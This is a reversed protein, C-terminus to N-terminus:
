RGTFVSLGFTTSKKTNAQVVAENIAWIEDKSFTEFRSATKARTAFCYIALSIGLYLLWDFRAFIPIAIWQNSLNIKFIVQVNTKYTSTILTSFKM